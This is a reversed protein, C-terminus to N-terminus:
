EEKLELEARKTREKFRIQKLSDISLGTLYHLKEYIVPVSIGKEMLIFILEYIEKDRQDILEKMAPMLKSM